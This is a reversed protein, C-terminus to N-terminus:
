GPHLGESLCCTMSLRIHRRAGAKLRPAPLQIDLEKLRQEALSM